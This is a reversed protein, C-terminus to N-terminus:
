IVYEGVPFVEGKLDAIKEQKRARARRLLLNPM